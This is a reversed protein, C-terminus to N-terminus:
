EANKKPRGPGRKSVTGEVTVAKNAPADEAKNQPAGPVAKAGTDGEAPEVLKGLEAARREDIDVIQGAKIDGERGRYPRVARYRMSIEGMFFAGSFAGKAEIHQNSNV